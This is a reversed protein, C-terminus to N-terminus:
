KQLKQSTHTRQLNTDTHTWFTHTPTFNNHADSCIRTQTHTHRTQTRRLQTDAIFLTHQAALGAFHLDIERLITLIACFLWVLLGFIPMEQHVLFSTIRLLGTFGLPNQAGILFPGEARLNEHNPGLLAFM